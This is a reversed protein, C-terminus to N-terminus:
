QSTITSRNWRKVPLGATRSRVPSDGIGIFGRSSAMRYHSFSGVPGVERRRFRLPITSRLKSRFRDARRADAPDCVCQPEFLTGVNGTTRDLCRLDGGAVLEEALDQTAFYEKLTEGTHDPYGDFHLYVADYYGDARRVAITARTSM